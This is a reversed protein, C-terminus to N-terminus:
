DYRIRPDLWAYSLDVLLNVLVFLFAVLLVGAQVVPFNRQRIADVLLRGLGPWSFVTETVVAGGLLAGFSLGVVTVVALLSNRLAHRYVVNWESVGKARATRIYDEGLAEVLNSRTLRMVVAMVATGLAVAPLLLFRVADLLAGPRGTRLLEGLADLLPPGRGAIPLLDIEVALYALLVMGLWFNPMSVGVLAIVLCALDVPGNRRVAALVGLPIGLLVAVVLSAVALEVTAGIHGAILTLVPEQHRISIGFDGTLARQLWLLYQVPLPRDFGYAARLREVDAPEADEGLLLRVPDGPTLHVMLFVLISVGFLVPVVSALRRLTFALM